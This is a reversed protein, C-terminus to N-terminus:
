RGTTFQVINDTLHLNAFAHGAPVEVLGVSPARDPPLQAVYRLVQGREHASHLREAFAEDVSALGGMFAEIGGDELGAPVLSEVVVDELSIE